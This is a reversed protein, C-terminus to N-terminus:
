AASRFAELKKADWGWLQVTLVDRYIHGVDACYRQQALRRLDFNGPRRPATEDPVRKMRELIVPSEMGWRTVSYLNGTQLIEAENGSGVHLALAALQDFAPMADFYLCLNALRPGGPEKIAIELQGHGDRHFQGRSRAEITITEGPIDIADGNAFRDCVDGGLITEAIVRSKAIKDHDDATLMLPAESKRHREADVMEAIGHELVQRYRVRAAERALAIPEAYDLTAPWPLTRLRSILLAQHACDTRARQKVYRRIAKPAYLKRRLGKTPNHFRDCRVNARFPLICGGWTSDEYNWDAFMKSNEHLVKIENPIAAAFFARQWNEGLDRAIAHAYANLDVATLRRQKYNGRKAESRSELIGDITATEGFLNLVDWAFADIDWNDLACDLVYQMDPPLPASRPEM